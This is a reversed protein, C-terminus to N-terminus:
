VSWTLRSVQMQSRRLCPQPQLKLAVRFDEDSAVEVFTDDLGDVDSRHQQARLVFEKAYLAFFESSVLHKRSSVRFLEADVKVISSLCSASLLGEHQWQMWLAMEALYGGDKVIKGQSEDHEVIAALGRYYALQGFILIFMKTAHVRRYFPEEGKACAVEEFVTHCIDVMAEDDYGAFQAFIPHRTTVLQAFVEFHFQILLSLPLAKLAPVDGGVIRKTRERHARERHGRLFSSIQSSLAVSVQHDVFFRCLKNSEKIQLYAHQKGQKILAAASGLLSSFLIFGVFLVCVTFLREPFNTPNINVPAPTFEAMTWHYALVYMYVKSAGEEQFRAV